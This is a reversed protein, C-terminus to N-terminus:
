DPKTFRSDKLQPNFAVKDIVIREADKVGEVTTELTYPVMLGNVSKYNDFYTMVTRPKGDMRRMGDVKVDLFTQADVWAHRVQGNKLTLKLKYANHGDTQEIGESEVKTGKAKYDILFGDLEQQQAASKVEEPTFPEVDRRGLFPRLKWGNTGDYTQIATDGQFQVEVRMKQPRKLEMEFPLQVVKEEVETNKVDFKVKRVNTENGIEAPARARLKGADMKGTMSMSQVARWAKLGGRAAVNKDVIQQASLKAAPTANGTDAVALSAFTAFFIGSLIIKRIVM